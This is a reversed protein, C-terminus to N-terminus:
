KEGQNLRALKFYQISTIEPGIVIALPKGSNQTMELEIEDTDLVTEITSCTLVNGLGEANVQAFSAAAAKVINNIKISVDRGGAAMAFGGRAIILYIGSNGIGVNGTAVNTPKHHELTTAETPEFRGSVTKNIQHTPGNM